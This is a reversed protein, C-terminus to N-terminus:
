CLWVLGCQTIVSDPGACFEGCLSACTCVMRCSVGHTLVVHTADLLPSKCENERTTGLDRTHGKRGACMMNNPGSWRCGGHAAPLMTPIMAKMVMSMAMVSLIMMTKMLAMMMSQMYRGRLGGQLGICGRSCRLGICGLTSVAMCGLTSM